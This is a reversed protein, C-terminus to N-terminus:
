AVEGEKHGQELAQEIDGEGQLWVRGAAYLADIEPGRTGPMDTKVQMGLRTQLYALHRYGQPFQDLLAPDLDLAAGPPVPDLRDREYIPQRLVIKWAGDRREFFDYFRGDCTADCEVGDIVGRQMISMKTQAIAREGAVDVHCGSHVHHVQAGSAFAARSREVFAQATVQAWTTMMRGDDHWLPLLRDFMGADRFIAWDDIVRQIEFFTAPDVTDTM